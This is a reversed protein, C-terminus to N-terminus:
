LALNKSCVTCSLHGEDYFGEDCPLIDTEDCAVHVHTLRAEINGIQLDAIEMSNEDVCVFQSRYNESERTGSQDLLESMIYGTYQVTWGDPCTTRGPQMFVASAEVTCVACPVNDDNLVVLPDGATAIYEIGVISGFVSSRSMDIPQWVGTFSFEDRICVLNAGSGANNHFSTAARGSYALSAGRDAPCSPVGWRMYLRTVPVSDGDAPSGVTGPQGKYGKCGM